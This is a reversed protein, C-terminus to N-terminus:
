DRRLLADGDRVDLRSQAAEVALHGLFDVPQQGILEGVNEIRGLAGRGGVQLALADVRRAHLEDAVHHDIRQERM